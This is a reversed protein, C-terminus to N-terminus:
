RVRRRVPTSSKTAQNESERQLFVCRVNVVLDVLGSRLQCSGTRTDCQLRPSQNDQAFKPELGSQQLDCPIARLATRPSGVLDLTSHNVRQVRKYVHIDQVSLRILSLSKREVLGILTPTKIIALFAHNVGGDRYLHLPRDVATLQLLEEQIM